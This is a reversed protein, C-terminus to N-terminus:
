RFQSFRFHMSASFVVNFANLNHILAYFDSRSGKSRRGARAARLPVFSSFGDDSHAANVNENAM